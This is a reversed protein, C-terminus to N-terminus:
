GRARSSSYIPKSVSCHIYSKLGASRPKGLVHAQDWCMLSAVARSKLRERMEAGAGLVIFGWQVGASWFGVAPHHPSDQRERSIPCRSSHILHRGVLAEQDMLDAWVCSIRDYKKRKGYLKKVRDKVLRPRRSVMELGVWIRNMDGQDFYNQQILNQNECFTQTHRTASM